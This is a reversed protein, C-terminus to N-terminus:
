LAARKGGKDFGDVSERIRKTLNFYDRRFDGISVLCDSFTCTFKIPYRVTWIFQLTDSL